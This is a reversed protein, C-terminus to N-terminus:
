ARPEAAKSLLEGLEETLWPLGRAEIAEHL